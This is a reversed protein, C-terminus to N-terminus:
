LVSSELIQLYQECLRMGRKVIRIDCSLESQEGNLFTILSYKNTGKAIDISRYNLWVCDPTRINRTPFLIDKTVESLLVPIKQQIQLQKACSEMRGKMTSGYKICLSDIFNLMTTRYVYSCGYGNMVELCQNHYAYRIQYLM